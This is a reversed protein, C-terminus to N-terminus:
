NDISDTESEGNIHVGDNITANGGDSADVDQTVTTTEVYKWQSEYYIWGANTGILAVILVLLAIWLRKNIRELRASTSEFALYSVSNDMYGVESKLAIM